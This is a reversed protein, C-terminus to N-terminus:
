PTFTADAPGYAFWKCRAGSLYGRWCRMPTAVSGQLNDKQSVTAFPGNNQVVRYIFLCSVVFLSCFFNQVVRYIFLCSVVFLSCFFNSLFLSEIFLSAFLKLHAFDSFIWMFKYSFCASIVSIVSKCQIVHLGFSFYV